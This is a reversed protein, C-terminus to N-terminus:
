PHTRAEPVLKGSRSRDSLSVHAFTEACRVTSHSPIHCRGDRTDRPLARFEPRHGCSGWEQDRLGLGASMERGSPGYTDQRPGTRVTKLPRFTRTTRLPADARRHAATGATTAFALAAATLCGLAGVALAARAGAAEGIAGVLPGGLPTSGMFAVIYLAVVRGRMHPAARLQVTANTTSSFVVSAAGTLMLFLAAIEPTPSAAALALGTGFLLASVTITRIRPAVRGAITLGAVVSGFGM